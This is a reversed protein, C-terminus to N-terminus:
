EKITLKIIKHQSPPLDLEPRYSEKNDSFYLSQM